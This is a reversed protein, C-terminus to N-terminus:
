RFQIRKSQGAVVNGIEARCEISLRHVLDSIFHRMRLFHHTKPSSIWYQRSSHLCLIFIIKLSASEFRLMWTSHTLFNVVKWRMRKADRPYFNEGSMIPVNWNVFWHEGSFDTARSKLHRWCNSNLSKTFARSATMIHPMQKHSGLHPCM